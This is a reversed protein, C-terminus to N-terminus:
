QKYQLVGLVAGYITTSPSLQLHVLLLVIMTLFQVEVGIPMLSNSALPRPTRLWRESNEDPVNHRLRCGRNNKM